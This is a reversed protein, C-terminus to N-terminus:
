AVKSAAKARPTARHAHTARTTPRPSTEAKTVLVPRTARLMDHAFEREVKLVEETLDFAGKVLGRVAPMEVPVFEGVARAWKRGAEVVLEECKRVFDFVEEELPDDEPLSAM